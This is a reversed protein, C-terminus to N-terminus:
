KGIPELCAMFTVAFKTLKRALSDGYKEAEEETAEVRFVFLTGKAASKEFILMNCRIEEVIGSSTVTGMGSAAVGLFFDFHENTLRAPIARGFLSRSINALLYTEQEAKSLWKEEKAPDGPRLRSCALAIDRDTPYQKRFKEVTLESECLFILNIDSQIAENEVQVPTSNPIVLCRVLGLGDAGAVKFRVTAIEESCKGRKVDRIQWGRPARVMKMTGLRINRPTYSDITPLPVPASADVKALNRIGSVCGTVSVFFILMLAGAVIKKLSVSFRRISMEIEGEYKEMLRSTRLTTTEQM